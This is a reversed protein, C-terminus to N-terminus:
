FYPIKKYDIFFPFWFLFNNLNNHAISFTLNVVIFLVVLFLINSYKRTILFSNFLFKIYIAVFLIIGISGLETLIRLFDNHTVYYFNNYFVRYTSYFTGFFPNDLFSNISSNFVFLRSTDYSRVFSNLFDIPIVQNISVSVTLLIGASFVSIVIFSQSYKLKLIFYILPVFFISIIGILGSNSDTLLISYILFSILTINLFFNKFRLNFLKSITILLLYLGILAFYNSNIYGVRNLNLIFKDILSFIIFIISLVNSYSFLKYFQKLKVINNFFYNGSLIIFILNVLASITISPFEYFIFYNYINIFLVWLVFLFTTKEIKLDGTSIKKLYFFLLGLVTILQFFLNLLPAFFSILPKFLYSTIILWSLFTSKNKKDSLKLYFLISFTFYIILSKFHNVWIIEFV